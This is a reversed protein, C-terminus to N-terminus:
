FIEKIIKDTGRILDEVEDRTPERETAHACLNRIDALRQILRWNPIDLVSQDKLLDNLDALTPKQKRVTINHRSAVTKLHAELVVGCVVGASRLHGAKLLMRAADLDSDLLESHIVTRIDRLVSPAIELAAGLLALQKRLKLYYVTETDFVSAGRLTISLGILYDSITYTEPTIEKRKDIKYANRFDQSREPIIQSIASLSRSYWTEYPRVLELASLPKKPNPIRKNGEEILSKLETLIDDLRSM